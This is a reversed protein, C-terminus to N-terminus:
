KCDKTVIYELISYVLNELGCSNIRKIIKRKVNQYTWLIIGFTESFKKILM